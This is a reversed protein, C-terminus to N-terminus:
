IIIKRAESSFYFIEHEDQHFLTASWERNFFLEYIKM